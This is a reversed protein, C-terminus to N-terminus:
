GRLLGEGERCYSWQSAPLPQRPDDQHERYTLTAKSQDLTAAPYTLRGFAGTGPEMWEKVYLLTGNDKGIEVPKLIQFDFSYEVLGAADRPAKDLDVIGANLAAKPDAVAQSTGIDCGQVISTRSAFRGDRHQDCRFPRVLGRPNLGCSEAEISQRGRGGWNCSASLPYM